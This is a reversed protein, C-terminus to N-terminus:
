DHGDMVRTLVALGNPTGFDVMRGEHVFNIFRHNLTMDTLLNEELSLPRFTPPNGIDALGLFYVGANVYNPERIGTKGQFIWRGADDSVVGYQSSDDVKVTVIGPQNKLECLNLFSAFNLDIYTDANTVLVRGSRCVPLGDLLAGGTGLPKTEKVYDIELSEFSSGFYSEIKEALYGVSLVVRELGADRLQRLLIALFPKGGIAIMPKPISTTLKGLRSGRGGALVIAETVKTM